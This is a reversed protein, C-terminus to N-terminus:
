GHALKSASPPAQRGGIMCAAGCVWRLSTTCLSVPSVFPSSAGIILVVSLKHMSLGPVDLHKVISYMIVVTAQNSVLCSLGATGLYICFLLGGAGLPRGLGVMARAIEGTVGTNTLGDGLGFAAVAALLVRGKICSFAAEVTCCQAAVLLYSAILMAVLLSVERAAVLVVAAIFTLGALVRRAKDKFLAHRPPTSDDVQRALIFHDSAGWTSLFGPYTELLVTDGPRLRQSSWEAGAQRAAAEEVQGGDEQVEACDSEHAMSAGDGPSAHRAGIHAAQGGGGQALSSGGHGNTGLTPRLALVVASYLDLSLRSHPSRGVLACRESLM